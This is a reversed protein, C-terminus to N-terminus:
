RIEFMKQFNFLLFGHEVEIELIHKVVNFCYVEKVERLYNDEKTVLIMIFMLVDFTNKKRPMSVGRRSEQLEESYFPQHFQFQFQYKNNNNM